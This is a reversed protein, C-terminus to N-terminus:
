EHLPKMACAKKCPSELNGALKKVCINTLIEVKNGKVKVGGARQRCQRKIM